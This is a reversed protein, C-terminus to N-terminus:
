QYELMEIGYIIDCDVQNNAILRYKASSWINKYFRRCGIRAMINTKAM